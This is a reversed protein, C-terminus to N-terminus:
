RPTDATPRGSGSDDGLLGAALLTSLGHLLAATEVGPAAREYAECLQGVEAIAPALRALTAAEVGSVFHIARGDPTLLAEAMDIERGRVRPAPAIRVGAGLRLRLSPRTKLAAFGMQM